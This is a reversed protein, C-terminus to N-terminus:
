RRALGHDLSIVGPGRVMLGLLVAAWVGHTAYAGPYVLVQIVVTMALLGLAAFRTGLGVLLLFPLLHEGTAALAAATEPPLLPLRYEDRFLDVASASLRPWGVDVSGSVLDVAFGEVKTQGSQWFVAAISFRGLLAVASEPISAMWRQAATFARRIATTGPVTPKPVSATDSGPRPTINM